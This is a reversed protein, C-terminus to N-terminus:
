PGGYVISLERRTLAISLHDFVALAIPPQSDNSDSSHSGSGSMCPVNCVLVFNKSLGNTVLSV